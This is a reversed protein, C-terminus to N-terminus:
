IYNFLYVGIKRELYLDYFYIYINLLKCHCKYPYLCNFNNDTAAMPNVENNYISSCFADKM